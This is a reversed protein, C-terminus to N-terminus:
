TTLTGAAYSLVFQGSMTLNLATGATGMNFIATGAMLIHCYDTASYTHTGTWNATMSHLTAARGYGSSLLRGAFNATGGACNAGAGTNSSSFCTVDGNFNVTGTSNYVCSGYSTNAVTDNVTLTGSSGWSVGRGGGTNNIATAGTNTITCAASGAGVIAYGSSSNTVQGTITLADGTGLTIFGSTATGSHSVNGNITVTGNIDLVSTNSGSVNKIGAAGLTATNEDLTVTHGAAIEVVDGNVPKTTGTWPGVGDGSSWNGSGGTTITAM